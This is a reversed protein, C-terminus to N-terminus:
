VEKINEVGASLEYLVDLIEMAKTIPIELNYVDDKEADDIRKNLENAMKEVDYEKEILLM